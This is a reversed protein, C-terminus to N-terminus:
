IVLPKSITNRNRVMKINEFFLILVNPDDRLPWMHEIYDFYNGYPRDRGFIHM